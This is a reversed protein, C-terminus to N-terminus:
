FKMKKQKQKGKIELLDNILDEKREFLSMLKTVKQKTKLM